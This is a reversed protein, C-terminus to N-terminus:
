LGRREWTVVSEVRNGEPAGSAVNRVEIHSWGHESLQLQLAGHELGGGFPLSVTGFDPRLPREGMETLVHLAVAENVEPDSGSPNTAANRTIPDVRFPYSLSPSM